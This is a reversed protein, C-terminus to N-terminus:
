IYNTNKDIINIYNDFIENKTPNKNNLLICSKCIKISCGVISYKCM